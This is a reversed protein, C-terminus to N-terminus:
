IANVLVYCLLSLAFECKFSGIARKPRDRRAILLQHTCCAFRFKKVGDAADDHFLATVARHPNTIGLVVQFPADLGHRPRSGFLAADSFFDLWRGIGIM